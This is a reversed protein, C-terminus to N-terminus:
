GGRGQLNASSRVRSQLACYVLVLIQRSPGWFYPKALSGQVFIFSSCEVLIYSIIGLCLEGSVEFSTYIQCASSLSTILIFLVVKCTADARAPFNRDIPMGPGSSRLHARLFSMTIVSRKTILSGCLECEGVRTKCSRFGSGARFM